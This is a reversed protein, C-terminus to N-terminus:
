PKEEQSLPKETMSLAPDQATRLRENEYGLRKAVIRYDFASRCSAGEQARVTFTAESKKEVYLACYSGVPTLFVQYPEKVNITQAFIPDITVVAQGDVLQASGFDELWNGPSEVTYLHRWGYDKTEVISTKLGTGGLRGAYYVAYGDPSASQGYVGYNTGSGAVAWGWIARGSTSPTEGRVGFNTGTQSSAWALVGYGYTSDSEFRGGFNQGYTATARGYVGRGDPSATEGYVGSPIGQTANAIGAVGRGERSDTEGYVGYNTGTISDTSGYVGVGEASSASGMVGFVNGEGRVGSGLTTDSEGYVGYASGDTASALGYVGYGHPAPTEGYVGAPSGTTAGAHGYVGRGDPSAAEGHVGYTTGTATIGTSGGSLALGTGSGSWAQGWHDHDSRAVTAAAGSGALNVSLTIGGSEGGGLLGEGAYVATIDGSGGGTGVDDTECTVSGDQNIVRISSGAACSGSVRSQVTSTLVYLTVDGSAGGGGLGGGANVATIDGSGGGTGVDDAGCYWRGKSVDWEAIEGDACGQPLRYSTAVSLTVSSGASVQNLGIGAYIATGSVVASVDDVGDAFGAPVGNLGSWPARQAYLAYPAATLPQRGLDAYGADGPCQVRIGLWRADGTFVGDGFDLEVAFLGDSIPVSATIASGTQAGDPAAADYLRFAMQCEANVPEGSSKLQGQYTFGTGLPAQPETPGAWASASALLMLAAMTMCVVIWKKGAM